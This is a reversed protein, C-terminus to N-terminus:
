DGGGQNSPNPLGAHDRVAARIIRVRRIAETTSIADSFLYEVSDIITSAMHHGKEEVSLMRTLNNEEDSDWPNPVFHVAGGGVPVRIFHKYARPEDNEIAGCICCLRRTSVVSSQMYNHQCPM